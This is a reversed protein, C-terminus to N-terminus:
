RVEVLHAEGIAAGRAPLRGRRLVLRILRESPVHDRSRLILWLWETITGRYRQPCTPEITADVRDRRWAGTAYRLLRAHLWAAAPQDKMGVCFRKKAEVLLANRESLLLLTQRSRHGRLDLPVVHKM